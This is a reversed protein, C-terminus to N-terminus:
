AGVTVVGTLMELPIAYRYYAFGLAWTFYSAIVFVFVLRPRLHAHGEGAAPRGACATCRLRWCERGGDGCLRHRRALRPVAAGVVIYTDTKTWSFPFTILQWLDQPLFQADRIATPRSIPRNFSRTSTPFSRIESTAGCPSCTIAPLPWSGSRRRPALCSSAASRASGCPRLLAVVALGPAFIASTYKLGIGLGRSFEPRRLARWDRGRAPAPARPDAAKLLGAALRARVVLQHSRQEGDRAAVRVRGRLRGDALRCRQLTFRERRSRASSHCPLRDRASAGCQPRACRGHHVRHRAANRQAAVLDARLAALRRDSQSLGAGARPRSRLSLPRASVGLPRLSSLLAPGLLQRGLSSRCCGPASASRSCSCACITARVVAAGIAPVM